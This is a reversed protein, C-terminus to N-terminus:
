FLLDHKLSYLIFLDNVGLPTGGVIPSAIPAHTEELLKGQVSPDQNM